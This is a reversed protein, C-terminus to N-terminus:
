GIPFSDAVRREVQLSVFVPSRSERLVHYRIESLSRHSIQLLCRMTANELRIRSDQEVRLFRALYREAESKYAVSRNGIESTNERESRPQVQEARSTM